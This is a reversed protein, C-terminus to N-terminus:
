HPIFSAIKEKIHLKEKKLKTLRVADPMPHKLEDQIKTDLNTHKINLEELHASLAM